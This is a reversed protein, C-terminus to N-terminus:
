TRAEKCFGARDVFQQGAQSGLDGSRPRPTYPARSFGALDATRAQLLSLMM